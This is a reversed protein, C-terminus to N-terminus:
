AKLTEDHRGSSPPLDSAHVARLAAVAGAKKEV